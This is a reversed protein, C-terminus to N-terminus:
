HLLEKPLEATRNGPIADLRDMYESAMELLKKETTPDACSRALELLKNARREYYAQLDAQLREV